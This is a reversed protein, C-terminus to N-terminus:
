TFIMVDPTLDDSSGQSPVEKESNQCFKRPAPDDLMISISGLTELNLEASVDQPRDWLIRIGAIRIRM